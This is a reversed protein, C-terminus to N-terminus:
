KLSKSMGYLGKLNIQYVVLVSSTLISETFFGFKDARTKKGEIEQFIKCWLSLGVCIEQDECM